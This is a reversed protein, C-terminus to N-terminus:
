PHPLATANPGPRIRSVIATVVVVWGLQKFICLKILANKFQDRRSRKFKANLGVKGLINVSKERVLGLRRSGSGLQSNLM